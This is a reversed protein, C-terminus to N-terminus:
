FEISVSSCDAGVKASPDNVFGLVATLVCPHISVVHAGREVTLTQASSLSDSVHEALTPPTRPDLGGSLLLTPVASSVPTRTQPELDAIPWLACSARDVDFEAVRFHEAVPDPVGQLAAEIDDDDVFQWRDSCTVARNMANADGGASPEVLSSYMEYFAVLAAVDRDQAARILGPIDGLRNHRLLSRYVDEILWDGDLSLELAELPLPSEELDVVAEIFADVLGGGDCAADADCLEELGELSGMMAAPYTLFHPLDPPLVADLVAAHVHTEHRRMTELAVRTGYSLGVLSTTEYGLAERVDDVDDALTEVSFAAPNVLAETPPLCAEYAAVVAEALASADVSRELPLDCSLRPLSEGTGRTDFLVLDRAGTVLSVAIPPLQELVTGQISGGPGGPLIMVPVGPGGSFRVTHLTLTRSREARDEFVEIDFCEFDLGAAGYEGLEFRCPASEVRPFSDDSSSGATSSEDRLGGSSDTSDAVSDDGTTTSGAQTAAGSSGSPDFGPSAGCGFVM